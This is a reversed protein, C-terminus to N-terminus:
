LLNTLVLSTAGFVKQMGWPTEEALKRTQYIVDEMGPVPYRPIDEEVEEFDKAKMKNKFATPNVNSPLEVVTLRQNDKGIRTKVKDNNEIADQKLEKDKANNGNTRKVIFRNPNPGVDGKTNRRLNGDALTPAASPYAENSMKRTVVRTVHSSAPGFFYM